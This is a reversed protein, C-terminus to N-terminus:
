ALFGRAAAAWADPVTAPAFHNGSDLISLRARPILAALEESLPLPTIADDQACIVGCPATIDPLAARLDHATVADMRQLEIEVGHFAAARNAIDAAQAPWGAANHWGPNGLMAGQTLYAAPGLTRLVDKRLAFLDTFYPTPGAWSASLLLRTVREPAQVALHQAIAGGLSHGVIDLREIRLADLLRLADEALVRVTQTVDSPISDGRARHDFSICDRNAFRAFQPAWFDARGGLGVLFLLPAGEGHRVVHLATDGVTVLEGKM